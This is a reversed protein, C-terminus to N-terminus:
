PAGHELGKDGPLSIWALEGVQGFPPHSGLDGLEGFREGTTETLVVAEQGPQVQVQDVVVGPGDVLEAGSDLHHDLGKTAGPVEDVLM